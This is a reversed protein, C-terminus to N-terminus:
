HGLNLKVLHRHALPGCPTAGHTTTCAGLGRAHLLGKHRPARVPTACAGVAVCAAVAQCFPTSYHSVRGLVKNQSAAIATKRKHGNCCGSGVAIAAAIPWQTQPACSCKSNEIPTTNPAKAHMVHGHGGQHAQRQVLIKLTGFETQHFYKFLVQTGRVM